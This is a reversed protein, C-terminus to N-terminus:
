IRYIYVVREYTYTHLVRVRKSHWLLYVAVYAVAISCASRSAISCNDQDEYVPARQM